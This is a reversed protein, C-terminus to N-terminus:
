AGLSYLAEGWSVRGEFPLFTQTWLGKVLESLEEASLDM